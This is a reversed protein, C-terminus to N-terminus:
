LGKAHLWTGVRDALDPMTRHLITDHGTNAMVFPTFDCGCNAQWFAIEPTQVDRLESSPRVAGPFDTDRDGLVLMVPVTAFAKATISILNAAILPVASNLEGAPTLLLNENKCAANAVAADTNPLHFLAYLCEDSVGNPGPKWTPVYDQLLRPIRARTRFQARSTGLRM